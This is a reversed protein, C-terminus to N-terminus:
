LPTVLSRRGCRGLGREAASEAVLRVLLTPAGSM